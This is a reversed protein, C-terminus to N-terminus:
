GHLCVVVLVKCDKAPSNAIATGAAFRVIEGRRVPNRFKRRRARRGDVWDAM